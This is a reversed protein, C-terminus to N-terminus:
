IKRTLIIQSRAFECPNSWPRWMLMNQLVLFSSVPAEILRWVWLAFWFLIEIQLIMKFLKNRFIYFRCIHLWTNWSLFFSTITFGHKTQYIMSSYDPLRDLCHFDRMRFPFCTYICFRWMYLSIYLYLHFYGIIYTKLKDMNWFKVVFFFPTYGMLGFRGDGGLRQCNGGPLATCGKKAVLPTLPCRGPLSYWVQSCFMLATSLLLLPFGEVSFPGMGTAYHEVVLSKCSSYEFM